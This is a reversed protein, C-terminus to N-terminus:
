KNFGALLSQQVDSDLYEFVEIAEDKSLLRFAITQMEEPLEAIVEAIDAPLVSVLLTKAGQFNEQELLAQLQRQVLQQLESHSASRSNPSGPNPFRSTM